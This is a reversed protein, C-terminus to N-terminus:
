LNVGMARAFAKGFDAAEQHALKTYQFKPDKRVAKEYEFLSVPKYEGNVNMTAKSAVDKINVDSEDLELLSAYTGVYNNLAQRLTENPQVMSAFAPYASKAIDGFKQYLTTEDVKGLMLQKAYKRRESVSLNDLVGFDKALNKIGDLSKRAEGTKVKKFDVKAVVYRLLFDEEDFGSQQSVQTSGSVTSTGPSKAQAKHLQKIYDNVEKTTADRGLYTRMESNLDKAAKVPDTYSIYTSTGGSSKGGGAIYDAFGTSNQIESLNVTGDIGSASRGSSVKAAYDITSNWLKQADAWGLGTTKKWALLRPDNSERLAVFLNKGATTSTIALDTPKGNVDPGFGPITIYVYQGYGTTGSSGQQQEWYKKAGVTNDVTGGNNEVEKAFRKKEKKSVTGDDNYDAIDTM